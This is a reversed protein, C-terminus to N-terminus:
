PLKVLTRILGGIKVTVGVGNLLTNNFLFFARSEQEMKRQSRFDGMLHEAHAFEGPHGGLVTSIKYMYGRLPYDADDNLDPLASAAAAEESLIAGAGFVMNTGFGAPSAIHVVRLDVLTRVVTMGPYDEPDADVLLQIGTTAGGTIQTTTITDDFWRTGRRPGGRRRSQTM